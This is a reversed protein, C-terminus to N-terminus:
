ARPELTGESEQGAPDGRDEDRKEWLSVPREKPPKPDHIDMVHGNASNKDDDNIHAGYGELFGYVKDRGFVTLLGCCCAM